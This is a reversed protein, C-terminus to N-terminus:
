ATYKSIGSVGQTAYKGALTDEDSKYAIKKKSGLRRLAERVRNVDDKHNWDYTYVCIVKARDSASLESRVM